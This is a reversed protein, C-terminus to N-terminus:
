GRVQLANVMITAAEARTAQGQPRITNDPYGNILGNNVATTVAARAWGSISGSDIFSIEETVPTLKLANVMMAAMQERTILDNPGFTNGDYGNVIGYAAATAITDKAWHSTTDAFVKGSQPELKFAKVLITAFEARTINNDPRFTGDPYGSIAGLDVLEKIRNEAWHGTIDTLTQDLSAPEAMVAFQTFHDVKVTVANDTAEGGLKVWKKANQDYYYIAPTEGPKLANPDFSLTITVEKDFSYSDKGGVSFEYVSGALRFGAPVAPPATVKTVKVEVANTGALANAPIKITAEDGLSITGGASPTVKASGTTSTVAKSPPTGGGGGGPSGTATQTYSVFKTFHKTWIVLDSGVDMKGDKGPAINADAWDQDDQANSPLSPIKTFEGNRYYGADKGAQGPIALRVAKDFTLPIDGYGVEIVSNVTVKQGPDPDITVTNAPQVTPVNITGNWGEPASIKAGAPIAVQIPASSFSTDTAAINLAPLESTTVMGSEPPNMLASVSIKADNVNDLVSIQVLTGLSKTEETIALEKNSDTVEVEEDVISEIVTYSETLVTSASMGAKIAIAKITVSENITIPGTYEVSNQTPISGDLTYFIKAGVTTSMLTVKTGTGVSGSTPSAKPAATGVTLPSTAVGSGEGVVVTLTGSASAPVIFGISYNGSPDAKGADFVVINGAEDIVKLPVWAGSATTGSVTVSDGVPATTKSLSVSIQPSSDAMVVAPFCMMLLLAIQLFVIIRRKIIRHMM